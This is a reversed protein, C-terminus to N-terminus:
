AHAGFLPWHIAPAYHLLWLLLWAVFPPTTLWNPGQKKTSLAAGLFVFFALAGWGLLVGWPLWAGFLWLWAYATEFATATAFVVSAVLSTIPASDFATKTRTRASM